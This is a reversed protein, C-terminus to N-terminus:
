FDDDFEINNPVPPDRHRPPDIAESTNVSFSDSYLNTNIDALKSEGTGVSNAIIFNESFSDDFMINTAVMQEPTDDPNDTIGIELGEYEKPIINIAKLEKKLTTRMTEVQAIDYTYRKGIEKGRERDKMRKFEKYTQMHKKTKLGRKANGLLARPVPTSKNMIQGTNDVHKQIEYYNGDVQVVCGPTDMPIDTSHTYITYPHQPHPTPYTPTPPPTTYEINPATKWISTLPRHTNPSWYQPHLLERTDIHVASWPRWINDCMSVISSRYILSGSQMIAKVDNDWRVRITPDEENFILELIKGDKWMQEYKRTGYTDIWLCTGEVELPIFKKPKPYWVTSAIVRIKLGILDHIAM